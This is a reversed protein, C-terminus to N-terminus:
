TDLWGLVTFKTTLSFHNCVTNGLKILSLHVEPRILEMNNFPFALM